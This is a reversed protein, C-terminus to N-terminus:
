LITYKNHENEGVMKTISELNVEMKFATLKALLKDPHWIIFIGVPAKTGQIFYGESFCVPQNLSFWPHAKIQEITLRESVKRVLLKSLLDAALPSVYRPIKYQCALIKDYLITKSEDDFPLNGCLM